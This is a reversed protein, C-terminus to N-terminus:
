SRTGIWMAVGVMISVGFIWMVVGESVPGFGGLSYGGPSVTETNNKVYAIIDKKDQPTLQKDSFKPMNQPGTLMATYIQQENALDLNPAFKGSSLAGGRGTFNHCSACNMRFLEGGRSPNNGRLEQRALIPQGDRKILNGAKDRKYVVSPGGTQSDIYAMLKDIQTASFVSPKRRAQAENRTAPMRGSSVQFYVAASGVGSLSPGQKDIGQLNVGHCSACSDEYIAKGGMILNADDASASITKSKPVLLTSAASFALVGLTVLMIGSLLRKAKRKNRTNNQRNKQRLKFM